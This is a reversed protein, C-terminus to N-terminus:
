FKEIIRHKPTSPNSGGSPPVLFRQRVVQRCGLTSAKLSEVSTIRVMPHILQSNFINRTATKFSGVLSGAEPRQFTFYIFFIILLLVVFPVVLKEMTKAKM